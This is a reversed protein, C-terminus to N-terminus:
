WIDIGTDGALPYIISYVVAVPVAVAVPVVVVVVDGNREGNCQLWLHYFSWQSLSCKWCSEFQSLFTRQEFYGESSGAWYSFWAGSDSSGNRGLHKQLQDWIKWWPFVGKIWTLSLSHGCQQFTEPGICGMESTGTLLVSVSGPPMRCWVGNLGIIWAMYSRVSIVGLKVLWVCWIVVINRNDWCKTCVMPTVLGRELIFCSYGLIFPM